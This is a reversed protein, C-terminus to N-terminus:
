RMPMATWKAEQQDERSGESTLQQVSSLFVNRAINECRKAICINGIMANKTKNQRQLIKYNCRKWPVCITTPRWDATWNDNRCVSSGLGRHRDDGAPRSTPWRLERNKEPQGPLMHVRVITRKHLQWTTAMERSGRDGGMQLWEKEGAGQQNDSLLRSLASTAAKRWGQRWLLRTGEVM